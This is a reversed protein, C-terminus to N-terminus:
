YGGRREIPRSKPTLTTNRQRSGPYRRVPRDCNGITEANPHVGIEIAVHHVVLEDIVHGVRAAAVRHRKSALYRAQPPIPALEKLLVRLEIYVAM